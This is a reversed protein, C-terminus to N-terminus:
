KMQALTPLSGQPFPAQPSPHSLTLPAGDAQLLFGRAGKLCALLTWGLDWGPHSIRGM